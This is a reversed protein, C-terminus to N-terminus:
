RKGKLGGIIILQLPMEGFLQECNYTTNEIQQKYNAYQGQYCHNLVMKRGHHRAAVM